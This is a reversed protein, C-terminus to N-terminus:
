GYLRGPTSRWRGIKVTRDLDEPVPECRRARDVLGGTLAQAGQGQARSTLGGKGRTASLRGRRDTAGAGAREDM